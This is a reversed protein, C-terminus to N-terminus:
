RGKRGFEAPLVVWWGDATQRLAVADKYSRLRATDRGTLVVHGIAETGNEDCSQVRLENPDLGLNRRYALALGTFESL